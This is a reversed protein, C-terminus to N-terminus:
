KKNVWVSLQRDNKAVAPRIYLTATGIRYIGKSPPHDAAVLWHRLKAGKGSNDFVHKIPLTHWPFQDHKASELLFEAVQEKTMDVIFNTYDVLYHYTGMVGEMATPVKEEDTLLTRQPEGSAFWEKTIRWGYQYSLGEKDRGLSHRIGGYYNAPIYRCKEIVIPLTEKCWLMEWHSDLVPEGEAM